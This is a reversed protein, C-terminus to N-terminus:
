GDGGEQLLHLFHLTAPMMPLRLAEPVSVWRCEVIESRGVQIPVEDALTAVFFHVSGDGVDSPETIFATFVDAELRLGLEEDLERRLAGLPSDDTPELKGGPPQWHDPFQRTRVLLIQHGRLLGAVAIDM